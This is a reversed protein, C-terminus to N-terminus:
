CCDFYGLSEVVKLALDHLGEGRDSYGDSIVMVVYEADCAALATRLVCWSTSLGALILDKIGQSQLFDDLGPSKLAFVHSPQRTFTREDDDYNETLKKPEDGGGKAMGDVIGSLRAAGKCTLNPLSHIDVLCSIM